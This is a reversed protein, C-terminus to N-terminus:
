FFSKLIKLVKKMSRVKYDAEAKEAEKVKEPL